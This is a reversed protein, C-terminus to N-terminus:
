ARIAPPRTIMNPKGRSVLTTGAVQIMAIM